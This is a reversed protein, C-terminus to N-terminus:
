RGQRFRWEWADARVILPFAASALLGLLEGDTPEVISHRIQGTGVGAFTQMIVLGAMGLEVKIPGFTV